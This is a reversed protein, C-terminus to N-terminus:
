PQLGHNLVLLTALGVMFLSSHEWQVFYYNLYFM